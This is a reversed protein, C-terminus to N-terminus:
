VWDLIPWEKSAAYARMPAHPNTVVPQDAFDFCPLDSIHDSYFRIDYADRVIGEAAMWAKVMALKGQAYCNEGKIRPSVLGPAIATVQTAIVDDIGLLHGIEAVYFHYSASALIIRRGEARDQAIQAAAETLINNSLTLAAFSRALKTLRAQDIRQGLLLGLNIEKLRARNILKLAYGLTVLAVIPVLILRWPTAHRVAHALFPGFTAAKTITKDLDYISLKHM